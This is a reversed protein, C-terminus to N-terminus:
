FKVMMANWNRAKLSWTARNKCLGGWTVLHEKKNEKFIYKNTSLDQTWGGLHGQIVGPLIIVGPQVILLTAGHQEM